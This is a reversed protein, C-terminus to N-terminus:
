LLVLKKLIDFLEKFPLLPLGAIVLPVLAAASVPILVPRRILWTNLKLTALYIKSPDPIDSSSTSDADETAMVNSGLLEREQARFHQTAQANCNLVTRERLDNLPKSFVLLPYAFIAIVMVLWISMVYAYNTPSISGDMLGNAIGAAVVSSITFIIGTFANPFLGVFGLGGYGDPHAAVLRMEMNSIKVLLRSWVLLRYAWRILLFWFITGSVAITWFGAKTLTNGAQSQEIMWSATKQDLVRDYNFLVIAVALLLIVLEALISDRSKCASDVAKTAKDFAVPAIIPAEFFQELVRRLRDDMRPEMIVMLSMAIVFRVWVNLALLFPDDTSDGTATGAMLALIFPVGWTILLLLLVRLGLRWTDDTILGLKRQFQYLPGGQAISFEVVPQSNTTAQNSSDM